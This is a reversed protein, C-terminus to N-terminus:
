LTMLKLGNSVGTWGSHSSSAGAMSPHVADPTSTDRSAGGEAAAHSQHGGAIDHDGGEPGAEGEGLDPQAQDGPHDGRQDDISDALGRSAMVEQGGVHDVTGLGVADPQGVPHDLFVPRGVEM